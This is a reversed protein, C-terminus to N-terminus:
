LIVDSSARTTRGAACDTSVTRRQSHDRADDASTRQNAPRQLVCGTVLIFEPKRVACHKGGPEDDGHNLEALNWEAGNFDRALDSLAGDAHGSERTSCGTDASAGPFDSYCSDPDFWAGSGQHHDAYASRYYVDPGRNHATLRTAASDSGTQSACSGLYHWLVPHIFDFSTNEHPVEPQSNVVAFGGNPSPLNTEQGM